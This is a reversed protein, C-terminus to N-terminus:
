RELWTNVYYPIAKVEFNKLAATHPYISFFQGLLISIVEEYMNRQLKEVLAFREEQTQAQAYAVRLEVGEDNIPHRGPVGERSPWEIPDACCWHVYWDTFMHYEDTNAFKGVITAWDLAPMEVNLGIAEMQQKLVVGTPTITGYDTPNLLVVTEGKYDSKALLQKGKEPNAQNYYEAAENTELPTGCYYIAPCLTWLDHDGLSFMVAEIDIAAQVALRANLQQPTLRLSENGFPPNNPSINMASRHGPKYLPVVIEANASLRKFFDFASGDVVDWEGTELGAIKTEEDPIELWTIGDLYSVAAGVMHDAKDTRPKYGEHRVLVVKDGQDWRELKYPSSGIFEATGETVKTTAALREPIIFPGWHPKALAAVVGGYPENMRVEFTQDDVVVFPTEQTFGRMLGAAASGGPLWRNLSAVVDRATVAQGDHFTMGERLNFTYIKGDTSVTWTDVMRPAPLLETNWGLPTEYLHQAVAVVVYFPSWVSDLTAISAQSVVRLTGGFKSQGAPPPTPTAIAIKTQEVVVTKVVEREVPVEQVVTVQKVVEQTVIVEGGGCAVALLAVLAAAVVVLGIHRM